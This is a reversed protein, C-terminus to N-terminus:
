AAEAVVRNRGERKAEYLARDARELLMQLTDHAGGLTAIGVSATVRLEAGPAAHFPEAAICDRLREGIQCAQELATDPMLTVFEEGGLRCALDIARTNRRVRAAFERLVSDGAAHGHTDNICKFNDIDALLLSLPRGSPRANEALTQLHTEMYRRNALGTLADTVALEV